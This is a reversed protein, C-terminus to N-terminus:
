PRGPHAPSLSPLLPFPEVASAAVTACVALAPLV